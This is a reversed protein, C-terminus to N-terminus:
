DNKELIPPSSSARRMADDTAYDLSDLQLPRPSANGDIARLGHPNDRLFQYRAADKRASRLADFLEDVFEAFLAATEPVNADDRLIGVTFQMAREIEALRTDTPSRDDPGATPTTV